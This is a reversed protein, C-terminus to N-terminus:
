GMRGEHRATGARRLGRLERPLMWGAVGAAAVFGLPVTVASLVRAAALATTVTAWPRSTAVWSLLLTNEVLLCATCSVLAWLGAVRLWSRRADDSTRM